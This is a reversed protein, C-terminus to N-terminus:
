SDDKRMQGNQSTATGGERILIWGTGTHSFVKGFARRLFSVFREDATQVLLVDILSRHEALFRQVLIRDGECDPDLEELQSLNSILTPPYDPRLKVPFYYHAAEYNSLLVGRTWLAVYADTHLLPNAQFGTHRHTGIQFVRQGTPITAASKRVEVLQRNATAAYDWIAAVQLAVAAAVLMGTAMRFVRGGEFRIFGILIALSLLMLRFPLFTGNRVTGDPIVLALLVGGIGLAFWSIRRTDKARLDTILTRIAQLVVALAILAFPNFLLRGLATAVGHAGSHAPETDPGSAGTNTFPIRHSVISVCDARGILMLWSRVGFAHFGHLHKWDLEFGGAPSASVYRYLVLCPVATLLIVGTWALRRRSDRWPGACSSAAIAFVAFAWPVFHCFYTLALLAAIQITRGLSLGERHRDYLGIVCLAAATGLSFGEFGMIWARGTALCGAVAAFWMMGQARGHQARLWLLALFFAVATLSLMVRSVLSLPLVQLLGMVVLSGGWNPVPSWTVTYASLSPGRRALFENLVTANYVHSPGDQSAVLPWWWVPLLLAAMLGTVGVWRRVAHASRGSSVNTAPPLAM